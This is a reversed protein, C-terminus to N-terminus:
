KWNFLLLFLHYLRRIGLFFINGNESAACFGHFFLVAAFLRWWWWYGQTGMLYLYRRRFLIVFLNKRIYNSLLVIEAAILYSRSLLFLSCFSRGRLNQLGLSKLPSFIYLYLSTKPRTPSIHKPIAQLSELFHLFHSV